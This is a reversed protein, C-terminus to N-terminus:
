TGNKKWIEVCTFEDRLAGGWNPTIKHAVKWGTSPMLSTFSLVNGDWAVNSIVFREGDDSDVATVSVKTKLVRINYEASTYPRSGTGQLSLARDRKSLM